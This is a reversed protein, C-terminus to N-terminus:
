DYGTLQRRFYVCTLRSSKHAFYLPSPRPYNLSIFFFNALKLFFVFCILSCNKSASMPLRAATFSARPVDRYRDRLNLFVLQRNADTCRAGEAHMVCRHGKKAFSARAAINKCDDQYDARSPDFHTARLKSDCPAGPPRLRGRAAAACLSAALQVPRHIEQSYLFENPHQLLFFIHAKVHQQTYPCVCLGFVCKGEM